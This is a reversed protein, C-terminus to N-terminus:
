DTPANLRLICAVRLDVSWPTARCDQRDLVEVGEPRAAAQSRFSRRPLTSARHRDSAAQTVCRAHRQHLPAIALGRRLPLSKPSSGVPWQRRSHGAASWWTPHACRVRSTSKMSGTMAAIAVGPAAPECAAAHGLVLTIMGVLRHEDTLTSSPDQVVSTLGCMFTITIWAPNAHHCLCVGHGEQMFQQRLAPTSPELVPTPSCPRVRVRATSAIRGSSSTNRSSLHWGSSMTESGEALLSQPAHEIFGLLWQLDM